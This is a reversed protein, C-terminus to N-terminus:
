NRRHIPLLPSPTIWGRKKKRPYVSKFHGKDYTVFVARPSDHFYSRLHIEQEPLVPIYNSYSYSGHSAVYNSASIYAGDTFTIPVTSIASKLEGCAAADAAAGSISLTNDVVYGTTPDVHEDLWDSVAFGINNEIADNVYAKDALKNTSSAEAPIKNEIATVRGAIGSDGGAGIIGIAAGLTQKNIALNSM